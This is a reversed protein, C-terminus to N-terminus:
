SGSNVPEETQVQRFSQFVPQIVSQLQGMEEADTLAYLTYHYQGDDLVLLRGVQDGHEGMCSWATEYLTMGDRKTQILNLNQASYGTCKKVTNNLDGGTMTEICLSYGEGVCIMGNHELAYVSVDPPFDATIQMPEAMIPTVIEDSITEYNKHSSCGCLMEIVCIGVLLWKM